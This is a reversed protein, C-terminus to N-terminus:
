ANPAQAEPAGHRLRQRLIPLAVAALLAVLGASWFTWSLGFRAGIGGYLTPAIASGVGIMTGYIGNALGRQGAPAGENVLMLNAPIMIGMAAGALLTVAVLATLTATLPLLMTALSTVIVGVLLLRAPGLRRLLRPLSLRMVLGAAQRTGILIGAATISLGIALVHLQYFAGLTSFLSSFILTGVASLVLAPHKLLRIARRYSSTTEKPKPAPKAEPMTLVLALGALSSVIYSAFALRFGFNEAVAHGFPPGVLFALGLAMSYDSTATAMDTDTKDARDFLYANAAVWFIGAALGIIAIGPLAWLPGPSWAFVAGSIATAVFAFVLSPKRGKRDAMDGLPLRLFIQMLGFLGMVVGIYAVSSDFELQLFEPVLPVGIGQALTYLFTAVYLRLLVPDRRSM